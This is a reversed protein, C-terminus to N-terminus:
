NRVWGAGASAPRNPNYTWVNHGNVSNGALDRVSGALTISGVGFTRAVVDNNTVSFTLQYYAGEACTGGSALRSVSTVQVSANGAVPEGSSNGTWGDFGLDVLTLGWNDPNTISTAASTSSEDCPETVAVVVTRNVSTTNAGVGHLNSGTSLGTEFSSRSLRPGITDAFSSRTGVGQGDPMYAGPSHNPAATDPVINVYAATGNDTVAPSASSPGAVTKQDVNRLNQISFRTGVTCASSTSNFGRLYGVDDYQLTIEPLGEANISHTATRLNARVTDMTTTVHSPSINGLAPDNPADFKAWETLVLTVTDNAPNARVSKIMPAVDDIFTMGIHATDRAANGALDRVAGANSKLELRDGTDIAFFNNFLVAIHKTRGNVVNYPKADLITADPESSGGAVNYDRQGLNTPLTGSVLSLNGATVSAVDVSESLEFVVIRQGYGTAVMGGYVPSVLRPCNVRENASVNVCAANNTLTFADNEQNFGFYRVDPGFFSDRSFVPATNDRLVTWTIPGEAGDRNVASVGLEVSLNEQWFTNALGVGLHGAEASLVNRLTTLEVSYGTRLGSLGSEGTLRLPLGTATARTYVHYRAVPEAPANWRIYAANSQTGEYFGRDLFDYFSRASVNADELVMARVQRAPDQADATDAQQTVGAVTIAGSDAGVEFRLADQANAAAVADPRNNPSFPVIGTRALGQLDRLASNDLTLVYRYGPTLDQNPNITLVQGTADWSASFAVHPQAADDPLGRPGVRTFSAVAKNPRSTDMKESFTLVIDTNAASRALEAEDMPTVSVVYPQAQDNPVRPSAVVNAVNVAVQGGEAAYFSTGTYNGGSTNLEWAQDALELYYNVGEEVGQFTFSGDVGSRVTAAVADNPVHAGGGDVRLLLDTAMPTLDPAFVKGTIRARAQHVKFNVNSILYGVPMARIIDQGDSDDQTDPGEAPPDELEAYYVKVQQTRFPKYSRGEMAVGQLDLTVSYAANGPSGAYDSTSAPIDKFAFLGDAGVTATQSTGNFNIVVKAGTLPTGDYADVVTGQLTGVPAFLGAPDAPRTPEEDKCAPALALTVMACAVRPLAWKNSRRKM